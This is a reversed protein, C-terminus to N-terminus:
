QRSLCNFVAQKIAESHIPKVDYYVVGEQLVKGGFEKSPNDSIVVLSLKPRIKKLIKVSKLGNFKSQALDYILVDYDRDLIELLLDTEDLISNVTCGEIAFLNLLQKRCSKDRCAILIKGHM